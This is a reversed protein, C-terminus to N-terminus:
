CQREGTNAYKGHLREAAECYARHAEHKCTFYGLFIRKGDKNVYAVWKSRRANWSVGKYGSTNDRRIGTNRQNESRSAERINKWSDDGRDRNIHDIEGNPFDGTVYLFALRSAIYLRGKIAIHWYGSGKACGARKGRVRPAAEDTWTFVGTEPDYDLLRRVEEATLESM